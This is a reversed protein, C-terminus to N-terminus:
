GVIRILSGDQLLNSGRVVVKNGADLGSKIWATNIDIGGLEVDILHAKSQDITYIQWREGNRVLADAPVTVANDLEVIFIDVDVILGPTISFGEPKHDLAIWATFTRVEANASTAIRQIRGTTKTGDASISCEMGAKVFDRDRSPIDVSVRLGGESILQALSVGPAAWMGDEAILKTIRGKFPARIFLLNEATEFGKQALDYQLQVGDLMQRSVAGQDFLSKVRKLEKDANDLALRSQAFGANPNDRSLECIVQDAEVLQGEKVPVEDIYEGILSIVSTEKGGAVAGTYSRIMRFNQQKSDSVSVPYGEEMQITQITRTSEVRRTEVFRYAMIAILGALIVFLIVRKM